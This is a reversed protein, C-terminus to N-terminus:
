VAVKSGEALCFALPYEEGDNVIVHLEIGRIVRQFYFKYKDSEEDNENKKILPLLINSEFRDETMDRLMSFVNDHSARFADKEIIAIGLHSM